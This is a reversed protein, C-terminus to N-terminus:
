QFYYTSNQHVLFSVHNCHVMYKYKFIMRIRLNSMKINPFLETEIGTYYMILTLSPVSPLKTPHTSLEYYLSVLVSCEDELTMWGPASLRFQIWQPSKNSPWFTKQKDPKPQINM